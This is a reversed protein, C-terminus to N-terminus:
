MDIRDYNKIKNLINLSINDLFLENYSKILFYNNKYDMDINVRNIVSLYMKKKLYYNIIYFDHKKLENKLINIENNIKINYKDNLVKKLFRISKKTYSQDRKFRNFPFFYELTNKQFNYNVISYLYCANNIYKSNEYFKIFNKLEMKASSFKGLKYKILIMYLKSKQTYKDYPYNNIVLNNFLFYAKVFQKQSFLNKAIFYDIKNDNAHVTNLM